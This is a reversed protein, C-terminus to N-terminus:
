ASRSAVWIALLMVAPISVAAYLAGIGLEKLLTSVQSGSYVRRLALHGYIPLWLLTVAGCADTLAESGTFKALETLGLAIFVFAHLHIAFYLHDTYRRGRYFLALIGAFVPLLAFLAKPLASFVNRQLAAPDNAAQLALPRFLRPASQAGLLIAARDEATLGAIPNGSADKAAAPPPRVGVYATNGNPASGALLFYILSCTLYLRLPSIFRARRGALFELTLQGPRRVLLRLTEAFKGDWGSFEAFAEGFLERLTPHAPVARQGCESCFSGVLTAGCNLCTTAWSDLPAATTLPSETVGM